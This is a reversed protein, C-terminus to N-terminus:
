KYEMDSIDIYSTSFEPRGDWSAWGGDINDVVTFTDPVAESVEGPVEGMDSSTIYHKSLNDGVYTVKGEIDKKNGGRIRDGRLIHFAYDNNSTHVIVGSRTRTTNMIM